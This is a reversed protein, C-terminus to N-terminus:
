RDDAAGHVRGRGRDEQMTGRLIKGSRTKPLRKVVAATSSARSRDSGSGCWRGGARGRTPGSAPRRRGQPRRLGLPLEGKLEDAVGVVACEAVDPHAALVEEIAGTSLRHGAVNIVDDTRSMIWLYGDEDKFGADATLYYGPIPACTSTEYRPENNWLTPLAAPRCRCSSSSTAPRAPARRRGEDDPDARRLGAGAQDALGAQGAAARPGRLQRRDALRDRDAVLPRDGARRAAREAWALTRPRCREGALFLTRFGASITAACSSAPRSRRAQHRPLRDARHLARARRAARHGALLRRCRAHRGAQGRLPGDHQRPAAAGYVIYSHGVAWGIDSAAWYVEGPEVGYIHRMSWTLAVLHGGNDRVIGKPNGTTGSTYLIYLPDTAAVPVCDVPAAGRPWRRGLRPRARRGADGRAQPRQLM